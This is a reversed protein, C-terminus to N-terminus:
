RPTFNTPSFIILDELLFYLYRSKELQISFDFCLLCSLSIFVSHCSYEHPVLYTQGTASGFQSGQINSISFYHKQHIRHVLCSCITHLANDCLLSYSHQITMENVIDTSMAAVSTQWLSWMVSHPTPCDYTLQPSPISIMLDHLGAHFKPFPHAKLHPPDM